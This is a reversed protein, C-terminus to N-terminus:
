CWVCRKDPIFAPPLINTGILVPVTKHKSTNNVVLFLSDLAEPKDSIGDVQLEYVIFGLYPLASEDACELSKLTTVPQLPLHSM